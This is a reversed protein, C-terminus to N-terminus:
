NRKKNSRRIIDDLFLIYWSIEDQVDMALEDIVSALFPVLPTLM